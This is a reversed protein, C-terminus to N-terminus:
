GNAKRSYELAMEEVGAEDVLYEVDDFSLVTM